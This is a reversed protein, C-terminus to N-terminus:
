NRGNERGPLNQGGMAEGNQANMYVRLIRGDRRLVHIEYVVENPRWRCLKASLAEGQLRGMRVARFPDALGHAAIKDRAESQNFCVRGIPPWGTDPPGGHQLQDPAYAHLPPPPEEFRNDRPVPGPPFQGPPFQGPLPRVPPPRPPPLRLPFQRPMGGPVFPRAPFPPPPNPELFPEAAAVTAVAALLWGALCAIVNAAVHM